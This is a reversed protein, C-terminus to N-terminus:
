LYGAGRAVSCAVGGLATAAAAVRRVGVALTGAAVAVLVPGTGARAHIGAEASADDALLTRAYLMSVRFWPSPARRLLPELRKMEKCAYARHGAHVAAEALEGIAFYRIMHHHAPDCPNSMRRLQDFAEVHRGQGLASLGRVYQGLALLAAAGTPVALREAAATLDEVLEPEGRLAALAAQAIWAGAEWM